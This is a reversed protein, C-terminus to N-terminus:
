LPYMNVLEIVIQHAASRSGAPSDILHVISRHSIDAFKATAPPLYFVASAPIITKQLAAMEQRWAPDQFDEATTGGIVTVFSRAAPYIKSGLGMWWRQIEAAAYRATSRDPATVPWDLSNGVDHASASDGSRSPEPPQRKTAWVGIIPEGAALSMGIQTNVRSFQAEITRRLDGSLQQRQPAMHYGAARLLKAAASHSIHQGRERLEEALARTSKTTWRLPRRANSTAPPGILKDLESLLGSAASITPKRGGGPRRIRDHLWGPEDNELERVGRAITREAVGSASAVIQIGKRGLVRAEAALLLRRQREDLYPLVLKIREALAHNPPNISSISV